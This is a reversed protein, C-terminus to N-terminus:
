SAALLGVTFAYDIAEKYFPRFEVKETIGKLAVWDFSAHEWSVTVDPTTDLFAIYLFKSVSKNEAKVFITKTYALQFADLPMNIAAEEFLERKVADLPTEGPDVIGGPLDPKFSREPCAKYESITLVLAENKENILLVGVGSETITESM